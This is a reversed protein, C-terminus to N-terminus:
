AGPRASRACPTQIRQDRLTKAPSVLQCALYPRGAVEGASHIALVGPHELSALIEGERKFRKWQRRDLVRHEKLVKLAVDCGGGAAPTARYVHAMAGVGIEEQLVFPGFAAPLPIQNVKVIARLAAPGRSRRAVVEGARRPRRRRCLTTARSDM